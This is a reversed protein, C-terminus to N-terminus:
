RSRRRWSSSARVGVTSERVEIFYRLFENIGEDNFDRKTVYHAIERLEPVANRVAAVYGVKRCFDLDNYNDGIGIVEELSISDQALLRSLSALKTAGAARVELYWWDSTTHSEYLRVRLEEKRMKQEVYNYVQNVGHFGGTVILELIYGEDALPEFTDVQVTEINWHEHHSPLHVEPERSFFGNPTVMSCHVSGISAAEEAIDLAFAQDIPAADLPADAHLRCTLAGDLSIIPDRLRMEEAYPEVSQHHRRTILVFQVGLAQVDRVLDITSDALRDHRDLLTGDLDCAIMRAARLREEPSPRLFGQFLAKSLSDLM